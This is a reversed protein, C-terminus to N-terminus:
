QVFLELYTWVLPISFLLSDFRDLMGGHGPMLSGSDKVGANRKIMSEFLDGLTGGAVVMTALGVWHMPPLANAWQGILWGSLLTLLAGGAFGEWSKKPSIREFLRHRGLSIGFLYAFTDNAWNLVFVALIIDVVPESTPDRFILRSAAYLPLGLYAMGFIGKSVDALAPEEPRFLQVTLLILFVPVLLIEPSSVRLATEPLGLCAIFLLIIRGTWKWYPSPQPWALNLFEDWGILFLGALLLTMSLGGTAPILWIGALILLVYALGSFSRTLFNNM